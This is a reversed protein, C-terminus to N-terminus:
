NISYIGVRNYVHHPFPFPAVAFTLKRSEPLLSQLPITVRLASLDLIAAEGM